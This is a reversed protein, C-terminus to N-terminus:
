CICEWVRVKKNIKKVIKTM